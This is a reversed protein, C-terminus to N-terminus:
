DLQPPQGMLFERVSPDSCLEIARRNAEVAKDYQNMRGFLNAALAWYPQYNEVSEIPIAGLLRYGQEPGYAEAM